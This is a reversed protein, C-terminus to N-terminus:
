FAGKRQQIIFARIESTRAVFSFQMLLLLVSSAKLCGLMDHRCRYKVQSSEKYPLLQFLYKMYEFM